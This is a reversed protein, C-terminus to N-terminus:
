RFLGYIAIFVNEKMWHVHRIIVPASCTLPQCHVTILFYHLFICLFGPFCFSVSLSKPPNQIRSRAWKWGTPWDGPPSHGVALPPLFLIMLGHFCLLHCTFLSRWLRPASSKFMLGRLDFMSFVGWWGGTYCLTYPLSFSAAFSSLHCKMDTAPWETDRQPHKIDRHPQPQWQSRRVTMKPTTKSRM